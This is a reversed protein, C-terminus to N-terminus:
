KWAIQRVENRQLRQLLQHKMFSQNATHVAILWGYYGDLFGLRLFYGNLFEWAPSLYVKLWHKKIGSEFLSHAAIISIKENKEIYGEVSYYAYHLLDGRLHKISTGAPVIVKDHPDYGGWVGDQKKFLRLKRDPYWLGHRIFKGCFYNSRNMTFAFGKLDKKCALISAALEESLAEDADLSLVYEYSALQVARNKQEIYRNFALQKVVAGKEQAIMVTRDTSFSDLVIVEDAVMKVSDICRGINKEENLTIIVASIGNM